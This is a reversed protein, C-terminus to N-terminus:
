HLLLKIDKQDSTNLYRRFYYVQCRSRCFQALLICITSRILFIFEDQSVLIYVRYGRIRYPAARRVTPYFLLPFFFILKSMIRAYFHKIKNSQLFIMMGRVERYHRLKLARIWLLIILKIISETLIM